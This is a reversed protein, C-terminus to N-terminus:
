RSVQIGSQKQSSPLFKMIQSVQVRCHKQSTDQDLVFGPLKMIKFYLVLNWFVVSHDKYFKESMLIQDGAKNLTNLFEKYLVVPSLLQMSLGKKGEPLFDTPSATFIKFKPVFCQKCKPCRIIYESNNKLMGSLVEEERLQEVCQNCSKLIELFLSSDMVWSMQSTQTEEKEDLNDFM